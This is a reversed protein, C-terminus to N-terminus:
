DSAHSFSSPSFSFYFWADFHPMSLTAGAAFYFFSIARFHSFSFIIQADATAHRVYERPPPTAAVMSVGARRCLRM